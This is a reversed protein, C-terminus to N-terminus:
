STEGGNEIYEDILRRHDEESIEREIVKGAIDMALSGIEDKIENVAKKREQAIDSEAKAKIASAQRNAERIVDDSMAAATKQANSVIDNARAKAQSMDQEYEEKMALAEAKAKEADSIQADAMARRKDLIERIPKFLFKKILFAQLFLNLIQAVFTWPVITVLDQVKM